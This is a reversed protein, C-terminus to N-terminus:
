LLPMLKPEYRLGMSIEVMRIRLSKQVEVNWKEMVLVCKYCVKAMREYRFQIWMRRGELKHLFGSPIPKRLDVDVQLRM